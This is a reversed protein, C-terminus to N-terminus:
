RFKKDKSLLVIKDDEIHAIELDEEVNSNEDNKFVILDAIRIQAQPARFKKCAIIAKRNGSFGAHVTGRITGMVVINGGAHVQAGANVDGTIVIHGPTEIFQGSRVSGIIFETKLTEVEKTSSEGAYTKYSSKVKLKLNRELMEKIEKYSEYDIKEITNSSIYVESNKFFGKNEIVKNNLEELIEQQTFTANILLKLGNKDGKIVIAETAM